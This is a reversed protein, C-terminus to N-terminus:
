KVSLRRRTPGPLVASTRTGVAVHCEGLAEPPGIQAGLELTCGIHRVRHKNEDTFAHNDDVQRVFIRYRCGVQEPRAARLQVTVHLRQWSSSSLESMAVALDITELQQRVPVYLYTCLAPQPLDADNDLTCHWTFERTLVVNM